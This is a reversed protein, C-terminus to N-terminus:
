ICEGLEHIFPIFFYNKILHPLLIKHTATIKAPRDSLPFLCFKIKPRIKLTLMKYPRHDDGIERASNDNTARQIYSGITSLPDDCRGPKGTSDKKRDFAIHHTNFIPVSIGV